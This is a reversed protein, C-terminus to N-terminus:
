KFFLYRSRDLFGLNIATSGRQASWLPVKYVCLIRVLKASLYPRETPITRKGVFSWETQKTEKNKYVLVLEQSYVFMADPM